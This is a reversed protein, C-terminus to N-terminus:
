ITSHCPPRDERTDRFDEEDNGGLGNPLLRMIGTRDLLALPFDRSTINGSLAVTKPGICGHLADMGLVGLFRYPGVGIDM